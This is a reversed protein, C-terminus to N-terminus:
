AIRVIGGNVPKFMITGFESCLNDDMNWVYVFAYGEKLDERDREWEEDYNSVYFLSLCTGFALYSLEAHYVLSNSKKEFAKVFEEWEPNNSLWYLIGQGFISRRDITESYYITGDKEFEEIVNPMLGIIKMRKIAEAKKEALTAM